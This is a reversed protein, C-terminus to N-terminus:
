HLTYHYTIILKIQILLIEILNNYLF